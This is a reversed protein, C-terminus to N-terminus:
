ALRVEMGERVAIRCSEVRRGDIEVVCEQCVGMLCFMGRPAAERPSHRLTRIGAALLAAAVSEGAFAELVAGDVVLRVRTPREVTGDIRIGAVRVRHLTGIRNVLRGPCHRM